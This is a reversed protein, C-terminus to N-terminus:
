GHADTNMEPELTKEACNSCLGFGNERNVEVWACRVPCAATDRCFCIRCFCEGLRQAQEVLWAARKPWGPTEAWTPRDVDFRRVLEFRIVWLSGGSGRWGEFFARASEPTLTQGHFNGQGHDGLWRLGEADFDSEPMKSLLELAPPATLRILAVPRGGVRPSNDYALAFDGITWRAAYDLKWARRTVRKAGALLAATTWAFAITKM